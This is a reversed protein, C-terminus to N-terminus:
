HQVSLNALGQKRAEALATVVQQYDAGSSGHVRLVARPDSIAADGLRASLEASTLSRGDLRYSGDDAIDLQLQLPKITEPNSPAVQPLSVDVTKTLLPASVMFIVLLVLMVDVLPTINMEAVASDRATASFAM